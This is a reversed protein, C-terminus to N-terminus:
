VRVESRRKSEYYKRRAVSADIKLERFRREFVQEQEETLWNWNDRLRKKIRHSLLKITVYRSLMIETTTLLDSAFEKKLDDLLGILVDFNRKDAELQIEQEFKEITTEEEHM